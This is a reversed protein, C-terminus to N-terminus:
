RVVLVPVSCHGLVQPTESGRLLAALGHRGHSGM